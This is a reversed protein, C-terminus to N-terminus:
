LETLYKIGQLVAFLKYHVTFPAISDALSSSACHLIYDKVYVSLWWYGMFEYSIYFHM